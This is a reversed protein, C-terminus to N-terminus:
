CRAVADSTQVGAVIACHSERWWPIRIRTTYRIYEGRKVRLLKEGLGYERELQGDVGVVFALDDETRNGFTDVLRHNYFNGDDVDCREARSELRRPRRRM